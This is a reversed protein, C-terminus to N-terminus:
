NLTHYAEYVSFVIIVIFILSNIKIEKKKM